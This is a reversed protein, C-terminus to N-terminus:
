SQIKYITKIFDDLIGKEQLEAIKELVLITKRERLNCEYENLKIKLRGEGTIESGLCQTCWFKAICKSCKGINFKNIKTLNNRVYSYKQEYTLDNESFINGMNYDNKNIYLHCPYIDGDVNVSIFDIGARCFYYMFDKAFFSLFPLFSYDYFIYKNSIINDFIFNIEEELNEEDIITNEYKSKKENIISIIKISLDNYLISAIQQRSYKAASNKTYTGEICALNLGRTQLTNV